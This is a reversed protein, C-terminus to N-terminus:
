FESIRKWRLFEERVHHGAGNNGLSGTGNQMDIILERYKTIEEPRTLHPGLNQHIVLSKPVLSVLCGNETCDQHVKRSPKTKKNHRQFCGSNDCAKLMSEYARHCYLHNEKDQSPGSWSCGDETCAVHVYKEHTVLSGLVTFRAICGNKSCHLTPSTHVEWCHKSLQNKTAQISGCRGCQHSTEETSKLPM